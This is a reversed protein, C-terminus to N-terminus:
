RSSSLGKNIGLWPRLQPRLTQEDARMTQACQIECGVRRRCAPPDQARVSRHQLPTSNWFWCVRIFSCMDREQISFDVNVCRYALQVCFECAISFAPRSIALLSLKRNVSPVDM